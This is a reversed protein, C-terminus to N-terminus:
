FAILKVHNIVQQFGNSKVPKIFGSLFRLANYFRCKSRSGFWSRVHLLLLLIKHAIKNKYFALMFYLFYIQVVNQKNFPQFIVYGNKCVALTNNGQLVHFLHFIRKRFFMKDPYM